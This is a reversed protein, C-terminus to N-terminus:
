EGILDWTLVDDKELDCNVPKGVLDLLKKPEIGYGPRKVALHSTTLYQGKAIDKDVVISKRNNKRNILEQKVPMKVGNGFASEIIRISNILFKMEEEDSSLIHDPGEGNKDLTFHREIIMAGMVRAAISCQPGITHDSYGILVGPYRNKFTNIVELNAIEYKAPYSTIAHMICFNKNGTTMVANIIDDVELLTCMGTAIIIPKQTAAVSRIFELNSSDDSGVKYVSTGLCELMEVDDLHSPTSFIDIGKERAYAYIDEHMKKDIEYEKFLEYQSVNGTNEMEYKAKRSALTDAKFTQLKVADAGANVASDILKKANILDTFNGGIEAIVYAPTNENIVRNDFRFERM